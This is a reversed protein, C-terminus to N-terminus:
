GGSIPLAELLAKSLPYSSDVLEHAPKFDTGLIDYGFLDDLRADKVICVDRVAESLYRDPLYGEVHYRDLALSAAPAAAPLKDHDLLVGLHGHPEGSHGPAAPHAM